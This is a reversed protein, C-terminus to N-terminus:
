WDKGDLHSEGSDEGQTEGAGGQGGGENLTSTGGGGVDDGADAVLGISEVGGDLSVVTTVGGLNLGGGSVQDRGDGLASIGDLATIIDAGGISKSQRLGDLSQGLLDLLSDIVNDGLLVLEDLSASAALDLVGQVLLLGSGITEGRGDGGLDRLRELLNGLAEGSTDAGSDLLTDIRVLVNGVGGGRGASAGGRAGSGGAASRLGAAGRSGTRGGGGGAGHDGGGGTSGAGRSGGGAGAGGSAGARGGGGRRGQGGTSGVLGGDAVGKTGDGHGGNGDSDLRHVEM